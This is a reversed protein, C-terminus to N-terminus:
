SVNGGKLRAGQGFKWREWWAGQRAELGMGKAGKGHGWAASVCRLPCFFLKWGPRQCPLAARLGSLGPAVSLGVPPVSSELPSGREM